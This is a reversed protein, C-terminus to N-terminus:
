KAADGNEAVDSATSEKGRSSDWLELGVGVFLEFLPLLLLGIDEM